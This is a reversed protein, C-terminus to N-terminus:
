MRAAFESVIFTPIASSDGFPEDFHRVLRSVLDVADPRVVIEHHDTRYQARWWPRM